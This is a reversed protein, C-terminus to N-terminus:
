RKGMLKISQIEQPFYFANYSEFVRFVYYESSDILESSVQGITDEINDDTLAEIIKTEDPEHWIESLVTPYKTVIAKFATILKDWEVDDSDCVNAAKIGSNSEFLHAVEVYFRAAAESLGSIIQTHNYDGDNEWSTIKIQWGAPINDRM